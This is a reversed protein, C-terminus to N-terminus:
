KGKDWYNEDNVISEEYGDMQNLRESVRIISIAVVLVCIVTVFLIIAVTLSM